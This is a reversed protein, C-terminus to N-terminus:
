FRFKMTYSFAVGKSSNGLLTGISKYGIGCEFRETRYGIGYSFSAPLEGSPLRVGFQLPMWDFVVQELGLSIKPNNHVAEHGGFHQAYDLSVSFDNNIYATGFRFIFPLKTSYSAISYTEDTQDFLGEDLYSILPKNKEIVLEDRITMITEEAGGDWTINGLVNDFSMGVTFKQNEDIEIIDASLGFALKFGTGSTASRHIIRQDLFLLDDSVEYSGAFDRTEMSAFGLLFSLSAGFYIPPLGQIDLMYGGYGVTFDQYAMVSFNNNSHNFDLRSDPGFYKDDYNGYLLLDVYRKDLNGHAIVNTATAVGWNNNVFGGVIVSANGRLRLENDMNKMIDRKMSEETKDTVIENYLNLSIVNNEISAAFPLIMLERQTPIINLRAPNWYLAEVGTSRQLYSNSFPLASPTVSHLLTTSMALILIITLITTYVRM